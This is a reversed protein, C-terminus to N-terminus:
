PCTFGAKCFSDICTKEPDACGGDAECTDFCSYECAKDTNCAWRGPCKVPANLVQCDCTSRCPGAITSPACGALLLAAVALLKKM